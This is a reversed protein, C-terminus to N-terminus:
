SRLTGDIEQQTQMEFLKSFSLGMRVTAPMGFLLNFSKKVGQELIAITVAVELPSGFLVLMASLIGEYIGLSGPTIPVAKGANAIAVALLVALVPIKAGAGLSIMFCVLGELLWIILSYFVLPILLKGDSAVSLYAEYAEKLKLVVVRLIKQSLKRHLFNLFKLVLKKKDMIILAFSALVVFLGFIFVVIVWGPLKGQLSLILAPTSLLVLGLVDLIRALFVIALAPGTKVGEFRLFAITAMEGLKAPLLTNLAFGAIRIKGLVFLSLPRGLRHVLLRLQLARFLWAFSYVILAFVIGLPSINSLVDFFKRFGAFRLLGLLLIVGLGLSFSILLIRKTKRKIRKGM